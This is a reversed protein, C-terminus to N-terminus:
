EDSTGCRKAILSRPTHYFYHRQEEPYSSLPLHQVRALAEGPKPIPIRLSLLRVGGLAREHPIGDDVRGAAHGDVLYGDLARM